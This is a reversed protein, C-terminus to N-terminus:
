FAFIEFIKEVTATGNELAMIQIGVNIFNKNNCLTILDGCQPIYFSTVNEIKDLCLDLKEDPVNKLFNFINECIKLDKNHTHHSGCFEFINNKYERTTYRSFKTKLKKVLFTRKQEFTFDESM